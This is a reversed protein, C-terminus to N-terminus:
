LTKDYFIYSLALSMGVREYLATAGTRNESDVDLEVLKAGADAFAAFSKRLLQEGIGRRREERLVGLQDVHAKEDELSGTLAGVVRGDLEALFWFLEGENRLNRELWEDFPEYRPRFHDRFAEEVVRHMDKADAEPDARRVVVGQPDENKEVPGDLHRRMRWFIRAEHYGLRELLTRAGPETAAIASTLVATAGEPRGAVIERAREEMVKAVASGLGRGRHDPHVVGMAVVHENETRPWVWGFAGPFGHEDEYVWTDTAMTMRPRHLFDVLDSEFFTVEGYDFRDSEAIMAAVPKVDDLTAPRVRYADVNL